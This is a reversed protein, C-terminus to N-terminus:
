WIWHENSKVKSPNVHWATGKKGDLAFTGTQRSGLQSSWLVALAGRTNLLVASGTSAASNFARASSISYGLETRPPANEKIAYSDTEIIPAENVDRIVILVDRTAILPSSPHNDTVSLTLVVATSVTTSEFNLGSSSLISIQGTLPNVSFMSSVGPPGSALAYTREPSDGDDDSVSMPDGLTMGTM